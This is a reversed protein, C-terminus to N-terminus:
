HVAEVMLLEGLVQASRAAWSRASRMVAPALAARGPREGFTAPFPEGCRRVDTGVERGVGGSGPHKVLQDVIGPEEEGGVRPPQQRCQGGDGVGSARFDALAELARLVEQATLRRPLGCRLQVKRCLYVAGCDECVADGLKRERARPGDLPAVPRRRM